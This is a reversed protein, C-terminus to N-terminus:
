PSTRSLTAPWGIFNLARASWGSVRPVETKTISTGLGVLTRTSGVGPASGAGGAQPAAISGKSMAIPPITSSTRSIVMNMMDRMLTAPGFSANMTVPRLLLDTRDASPEVTALEVVAGEAKSVVKSTVVVVDGDHLEAAGAILTAVDDGPGIEPLGEVGVVQVAM